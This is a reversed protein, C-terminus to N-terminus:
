QALLAVIAARDQLHIAGSRVCRIKEDPDVFVHIPITAGRDLGTSAVWDEVADTSKIRLTQPTTAHDKRYDDIVQASEDISLFELDFSGLESQWKALMPMEKICPKCWTAWVNVWHWKGALVPPSEALEPFAFTPADSGSRRVDCFADLDVAKKPAAAVANVRSTPPPPEDFGKGDKCAGLAIATVAVIVLSLRDM